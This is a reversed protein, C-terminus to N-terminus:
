RWSLLRVSSPLNKQYDCKSGGDVLTPSSPIKIQFCFSRFSLPFRNNFLETNWGDEAARVRSPDSNNTPSDGTKTDFSICFPTAVDVGLVPVTKSRSGLRNRDDRRSSSFVSATSRKKTFHFCSIFIWALM